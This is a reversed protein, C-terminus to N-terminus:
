VLGLLRLLWMPEIMERFFVYALILMIFVHKLGGQVRGEGLVGAILRRFPALVLSMHYLLM